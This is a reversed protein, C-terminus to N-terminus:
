SKKLVDNISNAQEDTIRGGILDNAAELSLGYLLEDLYKGADSEVGGLAADGQAGNYRATVVLVCEQWTDGHEVLRLADHRAHAQALTYADHKSYGHKTYWEREEKISNMPVHWFWEPARWSSDPNAIKTYEGNIPEETYLDGLWSLDPYADPQLDHSFSVGLEELEEIQKQMQDTNESM